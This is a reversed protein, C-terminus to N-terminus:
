NKILILQTQASSYECSYPFYPQQDKVIMIPNLWQNKTELNWESPATTETKKHWVM